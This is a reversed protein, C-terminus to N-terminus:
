RQMFKEYPRLALHPRPGAKEKAESAGGFQMGQGMAPVSLGRVESGKDLCHGEKPLIKGKQGRHDEM